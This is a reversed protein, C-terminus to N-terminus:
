RSQTLAEKLMQMARGRHSIANKIEMPLESFTQGYEPVMFLPDYGFGGEGRPAELIVGALAGDFTRCTGDPLCLAIVCHFAAGRKEAPVGALERLLLANNDADTAGEGAFRASYVGPRGCLYDVCLGSDDALVPRGTCRAASLAKKIANEEFTAGDEVVDPLDPFDAPSLITDVVGRLLEGFERLKGKNGSAVLLEKM